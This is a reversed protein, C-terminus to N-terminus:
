PIPKDRSAAWSCLSPRLTPLGYYNQVFSIAGGGKQVAHDFWRCGRITISHDSKMRKGRGASLLTEGRRRLFEELDVHAARDKQEETFPIYAQM